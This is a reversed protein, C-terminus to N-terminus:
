TSSYTHRTWKVGCHDSPEVTQYRVLQARTIEVANWVTNTFTEDCEIVRQQVRGAELGSPQTRVRHVNLAYM